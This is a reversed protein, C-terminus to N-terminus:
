WSTEDRHVIEYRMVVRRSLDLGYAEQRRLLDALDPPLNTTDLEYFGLRQYFPANWPIDRSTTLTIGAFGATGAWECVARILATGVGQRGHSPHVDLEALHPEGDYLKVLAFGIPERVTSLAVWLNGDQQARRLDVLDTSDNLIHEPLNWGVFMRAAALEIRQLSSFHEPQALEISFNM